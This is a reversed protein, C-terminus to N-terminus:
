TQARRSGDTHHPLVRGGPLRDRYPGEFRRLILSLYQIVPYSASTLHRNCRDADDEEEDEDKAFAEASDGKRVVKAPDAAVATAAPVIAHYKWRYPPSACAM